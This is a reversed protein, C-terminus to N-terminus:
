EHTRENDRAYPREPLFPQRDLRELWRVLDPLRKECRGNALYNGDASDYGASAAARLRAWSNVRGMHTRKGRRKAEAALDYMASSLKWATSGGAFIVDLELWPVKDVPLGDQAVYAVPFGEARVRGGWTTFLSNTGAWDGVIDPAVAFLCSERPLRYLWALWAWGNFALGQAFCGNDAAWAPYEHTVRAYGNGPQALLGLRPNKLEVLTSCSHGSLYIV